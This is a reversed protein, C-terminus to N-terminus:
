KSFNYSASIIGFLDESNQNNSGSIWYPGQKLWRESVTADISFRGFHFGAGLSISSSNFASLDSYELTTSPATYEDSGMNIGKVFGLRGTIWDAIRTEVAMNFVPAIFDTFKSEYTGTTDSFSAKYTNYFAQVGGAIQIDDVIPWNLGVGGNINLWNNENGEVTTSGVTTKPTYSYTYFGLLPVVAVKSGKSPYIWGRLGVSLEIGGDNEQTTLTGGVTTEDKYKNMRFKVNGEIWGKKVMYIIGLNAGLSSSSRDYTYSTDGTWKANWMAVYPALGIQFDKSATYGILGMFPVIPANVSDVSFNNWGDQRRNVVMGLNWKKGLAFTVGAHGDFDSSEGFQNLDSFAYNRYQTNWAPNNLMDIHADLIFPSNGLASYRGTGSPISQAYVGVAMVLLFMVALFRKLM